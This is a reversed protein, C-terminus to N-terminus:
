ILWGMLFGCEVDSMCYHKVLLFLTYFECKVVLRIWSRMAYVNVGLCGFLLLDRNFVVPLYFKGM